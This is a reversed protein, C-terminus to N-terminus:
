AGLRWMWVNAAALILVLGSALAWEMAARLRRRAQQHTDCLPPIRVLVPTVGLALLEDEGTVRDEAFEAVAAAALGLCAGALLGVLCLTGPQPWVPVRPLSPADVLRFQASGQQAALESAMRSSDFKGLLSQYAAAAQQQQAELGDLQSAKLPAATMRQQYRRLQRELKDVQTQEFPLQAIDAQLQSRVQVLPLSSAGGDAGAPAGLQARLLSIQHQLQVMGPYRGTYQTRMQRLEAELTQLQQQMQEQAPTPAHALLAKDTAIEQRTHDRAALSANLESQLNMTLALNAQDQGPLSGLHAREFSQVAAQAQQWATQAQEVQQSLFTTTDASAQQTARLNQQIFSTTLDNDVAQALSATSGTFAISLASWDGTPPHPLSALDVPQISIDKQLEAVAADMGRRRQLDPYLDHQRVVQALRDRSLVELGMSQLLHDPDFTVNPQVYAPPVVQREILLLSQSQFQPPLVWRLSAVLLWGGVFPLLFWWRRRLFLHGVASGSLRPSSSPNM